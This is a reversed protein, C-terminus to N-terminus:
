KELQRYEYHHVRKLTVFENWSEVLPDLGLEERASMRWFKWRMQTSHARLSPGNDFVAVAVLDLVRSSVLEALDEEFSDAMVMQYLELECRIHSRFLVEAADICYRITLLTKVTLAPRDANEAFLRLLFSALHSLINTTFALHAFDVM